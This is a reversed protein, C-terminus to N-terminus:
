GFARRVDEVNVSNIGNLNSVQGEIKDLENARNEDMAFIIILATLGFAVSEKESKLFECENEKLVNKAEDLLGDLDTETGEPM